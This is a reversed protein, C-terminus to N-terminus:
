EETEEAEIIIDTEEHEDLEDLVEDEDESTQVKAVTSVFEEDGLRIVKVGQTNRGMQSIDSVSVRILVGSVTILMIDEEQSVCKLAVVDGNKDTINCTRLGKGGRTQVRYEEIPTRKGYGNKTIILVDSQEELIEMGIVEDESDLTIGKVGTATRGMSRVDNENFRILMGKKTGIVMDRKGDTLKVSILEDEERLNLAILGSNRINEFSSLPTRKSIGQKTTFFLYWDDVFEDVRIIANVWEGKDVELLNIIPIGKATRGYEPIEYGKTRYVKGKNTFFLITDHTSTTLLHEVFDDENTNMGQIGRGGRRQSKYTSVPLRKIYGNHTLSIVIDQRPILDEDEIIEAGGSVIETRRGDNFREKVEILEERIIELVKEEDALIAKLEAILALLSQYEAEIKERELGTLRQLRMDLIAQAQKESLSFQTMLGERAIDTTQSGRILAIVADLNDLAIKLGELIHARAEAKRLEFETRRRIVVVQHDLYYQLCQKLNLVKPQGDVLALTNIGFSTQLSTQKYLNNLLVNANADRRVEIVIRMGSRDSEDRLDTIGDIKKDRALEAIKEILKAKNVQYPLEHVIITQKGNSQEEIEVKARVIISGKGTEYAKRIGSRGLIQGATPFDPGPIIEMLEAITIDPDQSVALVGDIVEGLQHPPINTAMGVAIGASGNVLLNPFRAPLVIPERESGDYNDQYDITDKNIDRLLEMSVKSMRAETYRMAAAADGDVSGFNGHGDILMYRYSFDQAMRVMTEYVASDGHPHYKGIVEGVIRASKKYPKDSGMGLDNMAYLIRRHVPKLGDRVDPLARSVIVSMAYDLFSARMEQSINVERIQSNPKDSM